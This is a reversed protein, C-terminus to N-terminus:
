DSWSSNTLRLYDLRRLLGPPPRAALAPKAAAQPAPSQPLGPVPAQATPAPTAFQGGGQVM